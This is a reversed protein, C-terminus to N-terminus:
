LHYAVGAAWHNAYREYCRTVVAPWNADSPLDLMALSEEPRLRSCATIWRLRDECSGPPLVVAQPIAHDSGTRADDLLRSVLEVNADAEVILEPSPDTGLAASLTREINGLVARGANPGSSVVSATRGPRRREGQIRGDFRGGLDWWDCRGLPNLWRGYGGTAAHRELHRLFRAAFAEPDPEVDRFRIAWRDLDRAVM